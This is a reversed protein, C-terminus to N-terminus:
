ISCKKWARPGVKTAERITAYNGMMKMHKQLLVIWRGQNHKVPAARWLPWLTCAISGPLSLIRAGSHLVHPSQSQSHLDAPFTTQLRLKRVQMNSKSPSWNAPSRSGFGIDLTTSSESVPPAATFAPLLACFPSVQSGKPNAHGAQEAVFLQRCRIKKTTTLGQLGHVPGTNEKQTPNPEAVDSCFLLGIPARLRAICEARSTVAHLQLPLPSEFGSASNSLSRLTLPGPCLKM